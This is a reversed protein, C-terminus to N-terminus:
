GEDGIEVLARKKCAVQMLAGDDALELDDALSGSPDRFGKARRMRFDRPPFHGAQAMAKNVAIAVYPEIDHPAHHRFFQRVEDSDQTGQNRGFGIMVVVLM